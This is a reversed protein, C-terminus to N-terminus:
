PLTSPFMTSVSYFTPEVFLGVSDFLESVQSSGSVSGDFSSPAHAPYLSKACMYSFHLKTKM